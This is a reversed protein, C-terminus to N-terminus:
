FIYKNLGGNAIVTTLTNTSARGHRNKWTVMLTVRSATVQAGYADYAVQSVSGSYVGATDSPDAFTTPLNQLQSWSLLRIDEVKQQLVQSSRATLRIDSLYHFCQSSVALVSSLVIGLIMAAIMAELITFGAQRRQKM